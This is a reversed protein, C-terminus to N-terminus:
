RGAAPFLSVTRHVVTLDGDQSSTTNPGRARELRGQQPFGYSQDFVQVKIPAAAATDFSFDVGAAPLGVIDLLTAGSRLKRTKAKAPGPMAAFEIERVQAAAPFVVIAEPAGRASRLHLAYRAGTPGATESPSLDPPALAVLPADAYFARSASGAFRPRPVPEFHAAAALTAPLRLSDCRALYHSEGTDVDLWYELNVREPWDASYAPMWMAVVAAGLATLAAAAVIIRQAARSARALLPLLSATGLCLVLTSLPWAPSGLAMYLFQLLPFMAGFLVLAPLIAALDSAWTKPAESRMLSMTAPLAGAGAAAAALLFLFSAGPAVVACVVCLVANQLAAAMWFGWFHARRAMCLGAVGAALPAIAAAAIHLPLPQSIWSSGELSPVKHLGIALALLGSCLAVGSGVTCLTAVWGWLARRRTVARKRLLIASEALLLILALLAAPLTFGAPWAILTRSFGDFFVSEGPSPDLTPANALASLAALANDGQHQISGPDANAVSDLPTHYRGVHGIYAFNFGQFGATKFVTFDTDNPLLKYVVYFLSNTLPRAIASDYLRMLWANATGTEFMLSPGSTGRAEINVAAKVNASLPHERVFLSAGLLGAEEGDTFLLVIPHRPAPRARLIRAIELMSAVAAGDDSAGPGAPVSDYHGALLVMSRDESDGGLRAIINVPNGCAGENCVWGSQLEPTYGLAALREVIVDRLRAGAPSRIPHPIGDGVLDRLIGITRYASFVTPPADVGLPVMPRYAFHTAALLAAIGALAVALGRHRAAM